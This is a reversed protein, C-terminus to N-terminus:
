EYVAVVVKNGFKYAVTDRFHRSAAVKYGLGEIKALSDEDFDNKFRSGLFEGEFGAVTTGSKVRDLNFDACEFGYFFCYDRASAALSTVMVPEKPINKFIFEYILPRNDLWFDVRNTLDYSNAGLGYILGLALGIGVVKASMWGDRALVLLYDGGLGMVLSVLPVLFLFRLFVEQWSLLYNALAVAGGCATLFLVSRKKERVLRYVGTLFLFILPWYFIVVSKQEMPEVEEFFWSEMDFFSLVQKMIGRYVFLYKNYGARRLALPMEVKERLSDESVLREMVEKQKAELNFNALLAAKNEGLNNVLGLFCIGAAATWKWWKKKSAWFLCGVVGFKVAWGPYVLWVVWFAPSMLAILGALWVVRASLVRRATMLWGALGVLMVLLCGARLGWLWGEGRVGLLVLWRAQAQSAPYAMRVGVLLQLGILGLVLLWM